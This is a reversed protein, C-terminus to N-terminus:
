LKDFVPVFESHGIMDIIPNSDMANAGLQPM